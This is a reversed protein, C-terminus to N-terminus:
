KPRLEAVSEIKAILEKLDFPKELVADAGNEHFNELLHRSGSILIVGLNNYETHERLYKCVERGDANKLKVDVLLVEPQFKDIEIVFEKTNIATRVDFNYHHILSKLTLLLYNSDDLILIKRM